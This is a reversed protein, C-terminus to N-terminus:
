ADLSEPATRLDGFELQDDTFNRPMATAIDSPNIASERGLSQGLWDQSILDWSCLLM